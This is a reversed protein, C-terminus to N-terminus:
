PNEAEVERVQAGLTALVEDVPGRIDFWHDGTFIRTLDAGRPLIASVAEPNVLFLEDLPPDAPVWALPLWTFHSM